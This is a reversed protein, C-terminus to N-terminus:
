WGLLAGDALQHSPRQENNTWTKEASFWCGLRFRAANTSVEDAQAPYKRQVKQSEWNTINNFMRSFIIRDPSELAHGTESMFEQLMHLIQVSTDGPCVHWSIDISPSANDNTKKGNDSKTVTEAKKEWITSLFSLRLPRASKCHASDWDARRTISSKAKCQRDSRRRAYHSMRRGEEKELLSGALINLM